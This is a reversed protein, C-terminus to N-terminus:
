ILAIASIYNLDEYKWIVRELFELRKLIKEVDLLQDVEELTRNM